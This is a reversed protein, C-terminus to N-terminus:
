FQGSKHKTTSKLIELFEKSLTKQSYSKLYSNRLNKSANSISSTSNQLKKIEEALQLAENPVVEVFDRPSIIEIIGRHPPSLYCKGFYM